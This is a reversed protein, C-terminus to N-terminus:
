DLSLEACAAIISEQIINYNQNLLATTENLRRDWEGGEQTAKHGQDNLVDVANSLRVLDTTDITVAHETPHWEHETKIWIRCDVCEEGESAKQEIRIQEFESRTIIQNPFKIV